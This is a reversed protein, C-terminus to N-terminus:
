SHHEKLLAILEEAQLSLLGGDDGQSEVISALEKKVEQLALIKEEITDQTILKYVQVKKEQGIRHARDTAQRQAALNWWPDYHIVTDAATLNLGTGGAKLSILFVDTEGQNFTNVLSLREQVPTSGQLRLYRFDQEKLKDEILSLMDTYQSFLLVRHNGNKAQELIEMLALLKSGDESFNEYCLRPDCCFRRLKTLLSLIQLKNSSTNKEQIEMLSTNLLANYTNYETDSLKVPIISTIKPPLEKLVDKKLRRLIFPKIMNHLNTKAIADNNKVIPTEFQSRFRNYNFLYNPMLFDFISWLESLRNEIPTGTLAFRHESNVLKVAKAAQTTHNKIYQAEDIAFYMFSYAKYTEIDRKLLDYSTIIIDQNKIQKIQLHRQSAIGQVVKVPLNPAFKELENKWNLVLSSPCVILSPSLSSRKIKSDQYYSLLLSIFQISKGLGMDDALIGCFNCKEMSRLWQFGIKQYPRLTKKLSSPLKYEAHMYENIDNALTQFAKNKKTILNNSENFMGNLYLARFAPIEIEGQTLADEKLQLGQTLTLAEEISSIEESPADENNSFLNIFSGNKLRYYRKKEHYAALLSKMEQFPINDSTISLKLLGSNLSVSAQMKEPRKLQIKKLKESIFLEGMEELQPLGNLLFDFIADNGTISLPAKLSKEDSLLNITEEPTFGLISCVKVIFRKEDNANREPITNNENTSNKPNNYIGMPFNNADYNAVLSLNIQDNKPSDLKIQGIFPQTVHSAILGDPDDLKVYPKIEPWLHNFFDEKQFEYFLLKNDSALLTAVLPALAKSAKYSFRKLTNKEQKYLYQNPTEFLKFIQEEYTYTTNNQVHQSFFPIGTYYDSLDQAQLVINNNELTLRLYLTPKESSLLLRPPSYKDGVSFLKDSFAKNMEYLFANTLLMQKNNALKGFDFRLSYNSCSQYYKSLLSIWKKSNDDFSEISGKFKLNKGFTLQADKEIDNIFNVISKVIYLRGLSPSDNKGNTPHLREAVSLSLFVGLNMDNLHFTPIICYRGLTNESSKLTPSFIMKKYQDVLSNTKKLNKSKNIKLKAYDFQSESMNSFIISYDKNSNCYEQYKLITGVIHECPKSPDKFSKECTCTFKSLKGKKNLYIDTVTPEKNSSFVISHVVNYFKIHEYTKLQVNRELFLGLGDMLEDSFDDKGNFFEDIWSKDISITTFAAM